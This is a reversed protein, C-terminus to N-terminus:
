HIETQRMTLHCADFYFSLGKLKVINGSMGVEVKAHQRCTCFYDRVDDDVWVITLDLYIAAVGEKVVDAVVKKVIDEVVPNRPNSPCRGNGCKVAKASRNGLLLSLTCGCHRMKHLQGVILWLRFYANNCFLVCASPHGKREASGVDDDCWWSCIMRTPMAFALAACNKMLPLSTYRLKICRWIALTWTSASAKWRTHLNKRVSRGVEGKTHQRCTCFYIQLCCVLALTSTTGALREFVNGACIQM